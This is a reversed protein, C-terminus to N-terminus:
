KERTLKAILSLLLPYQACYQDKLRDGAPLARQAMEYHANMFAHLHHEDLPEIAVDYRVANREFRLRPIFSVLHGELVSELQNRDAIFASMVAEYADGDWVFGIDYNFGYAVLKSTSKALLRHCNSAITWLPVKGVEDASESLTIRIRNEGVQIIIPQPPYVAVIMEPTDMVTPKIDSGAVGRLKRTDIAHLDLSDYSLTVNQSLVSDVKM